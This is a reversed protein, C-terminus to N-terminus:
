SAQPETARREAETKLHRLGGDLSSKLMKRVPGSLVRALLGDYSEETRVLTGGDRPELRYIHVARLGLTRGTWGILRPPDVRQLASTITAPGAKWRFETGEAVEGRVSVSKVDPNWRPWDEMATLVEWVTHPDAAVEIEAEAVVPASEDVNM